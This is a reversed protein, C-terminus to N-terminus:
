SKILPHHTVRLYSRTTIKFFIWGFSIGVFAGVLIDGPYHVGIMIRSFAVLASWLFMLWIAPVYHKLILWLYTAVGFTNAAHSSAFGFQGGCSKAIHVFQSLYPDHCPRLREFFPKMFTSTFQDSALIVLALGGIIWLAEKRFKKIIILLLFIYLPIWTIGNTIALWVQDSFHSFKGNLFLFANQDAKEIIELM